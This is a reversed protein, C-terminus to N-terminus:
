RVGREKKEDLEATKAQVDELTKKAAEPKKGHKRVAAGASASKNPPKVFLKHLSEERSNRQRRQAKQADDCGGKGGKLDGPGASRARSVQCQNGQVRAPSCRTPLWWTVLTRTPVTEQFGPAGTDLWRRMRVTWVNKRGHTWHVWLKLLHRTEGKEEPWASVATGDGHLRVVLM